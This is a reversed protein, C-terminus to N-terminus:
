QTVDSTPDVSRRAELVDHLSVGEGGTMNEASATQLERADHAMADLIRLKDADSLTKADVVDHPKPFHSYPDLVIEDVSATTTM